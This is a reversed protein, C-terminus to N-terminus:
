LNTLDIQSEPLDGVTVRPEDNFVNRYMTSATEISSSYPAPNLWPLLEPLVSNLGFSDQQTNTSSQISYTPQSSTQEVLSYQNNCNQLSYQPCPQSQQTQWYQQQQQSFIEDEQKIAHQAYSTQQACQFFSDDVEPFNTRTEQLQVQSPMSSSQPLFYSGYSRSVAESNAQQSLPYQPVSAVRPQVTWNMIPQQQRQQQQQQQQQSLQQTPSANSAQLLDCADAGELPSNLQEPTGSATNISNNNNNNINNNSNSNNNNNISAGNGRGSQEKKFKMRRNQFWIKIQRESLKLNEAMQIRQPRCLYRNHNFQKELEVLQVSSYATRSRKGSSKRQSAQATPLPSTDARAAIVRQKKLPPEEDSDRAYTREPITVLAQQPQQHEYTMRKIEEEVKWYQQQHQQQMLQQQQQRQPQLMLTASGLDSYGPWSSVSNASDVSSPSMPYVNDEFATKRIQEQHVAVAHQSLKGLTMKEEPSDTECTSSQEPAPDLETSTSSSNENSRSSSTTVVLPQALSSTKEEVSMECHMRLLNTPVTPWHPDDSRGIIPLPVAKSGLEAFSGFEPIYRYTLQRRSTQTEGVGGGVVHFAAHAAVTRCLSSPSRYVVAPPHRRGPIARTRESPTLPIVSDLSSQVSPNAQFNDRLYSKRNHPYIRGARSPAHKHSATEQRKGYISLPLTPPTFM